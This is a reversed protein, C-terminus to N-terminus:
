DWTQGWPQNIFDPREILGKSLRFGVRERAMNDTWVFRELRGKDEEGLRLLESGVQRTLRACDRCVHPRLNMGHFQCNNEESHKM